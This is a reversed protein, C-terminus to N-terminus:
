SFMSRTITIASGLIAGGLILYAAQQVTVMIPTRILTDLYAMWESPASFMLFAVIIIIIGILWDKIISNM